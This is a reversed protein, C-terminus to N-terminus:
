DWNRIKEHPRLDWAIPGLLQLVKDNQDKVLEEPYKNEIKWFVDIDITLLRSAILKGAQGPSQWLFM